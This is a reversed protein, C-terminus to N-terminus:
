IRGAKKQAFYDAPSLSALAEVSHGHTGVSHTTSGAPTGSGPRGQAKALEPNSKLFNAAAQELPVDVDAGYQDKTSQVYQGAANKRIDTVHIFDRGANVAGAKNLADVIASRQETEATRRREAALADDRKKIEANLRDTEAKWEPPDGAPKPSPTAAATKPKFTGDAQKDLLGVEALKDFTLMGGSLTELTKNMRGIMAATGNFAEQTVFQPTNQSPDGTSGPTPTTTPEPM